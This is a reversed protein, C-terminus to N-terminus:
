RTRMGPLVHEVKLNEVRDIGIVADPLAKLLTEMLIEAEYPGDLDDSMLRIRQKPINVWLRYKM